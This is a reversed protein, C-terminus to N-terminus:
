SVTRLFQMVAGDEPILRRMDSMAFVSLARRACTGRWWAMSSRTGPEGSKWSSPLGRPTGAASQIALIERLMATVTEHYREYDIDLVGAEADFRLLGQDLFYNWQMLQMNQYIARPLPKIFQLVRNIGVAYISRLTQDDFHGSDHLLRAAFLSVLDAKLEEFLDSWPALAEGLLRGDATRDVGLYHGIEHWLTYQVRGESDLDQSFEPKTAARFTAKALKLFEPHTLVNQRVLIIRGYKRAHDPDNPLITATNAGRAQGYDAIVHYVGVPIQNRVRKRRDYPLHDEIEQIGAIAAALQESQEEDRLLVSLSFFTKM